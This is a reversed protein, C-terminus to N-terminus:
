KYMLEACVEYSSLVQKTKSCSKHSRSNSHIKVTKINLM